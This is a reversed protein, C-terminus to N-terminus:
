RGCVSGIEGGIEIFKGTFMLISGSFRNGAQGAAIKEITRKDSLKGLAFYTSGFAINTWDDIHDEINSKIESYGYQTM